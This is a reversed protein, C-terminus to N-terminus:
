NQRSSWGGMYLIRRTELDPKELSAEIKSKSKDYQMDVIKELFFTHSRSYVLTERELKLLENIDEAKQITKRLLYQAGGIDGTSIALIAMMKAEHIFKLNEEYRIRISKMERKEKDM